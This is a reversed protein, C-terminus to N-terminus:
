SSIRSSPWDDIGYPTRLLIFPLPGHVARPVYFATHLRVGDRMPIMVETKDFAQGTDPRAQARAPFPSSLSIGSLLLCLYAPTARPNRM